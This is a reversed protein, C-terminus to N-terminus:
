FESPTEFKLHSSLLNDGELHQHKVVGKVGDDPLEITVQVHDFRNEINQEFFSEGARWVFNKPSNKSEFFRQNREFIVNQEDLFRDVAKQGAVLVHGAQVQGLLPVNSLM